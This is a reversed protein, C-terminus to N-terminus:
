KEKTKKHRRAYMFSLWISLIGFIIMFLYFLLNPAIVSLAMFILFGMLPIVNMSLLETIYDLWSYNLDREVVSQFYDSRTKYRRGVRYKDIYEILSNDITINPNRKFDSEVM